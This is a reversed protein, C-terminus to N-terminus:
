KFQEDMVKLQRNKEHKMNVKKFEKSEQLSKKQGPTLNSCSVWYSFIKENLRNTLSNFLQQSIELTTLSSDRWTVRQLAPFWQHLLFVAAHFHKITLTERSAKIKLCCSSLPRHLPVKLFGFKPNQPLPRLESMHLSTFKNNLPLDVLSLCRNSHIDRKAYSSLPLLLSQKESFFSLWNNRKTLALPFFSQDLAVPTWSFCAPYVAFVCVCSRM